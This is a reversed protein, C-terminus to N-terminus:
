DRSIAGFNFLLPTPLLSIIPEKRSMLTASEWAEGSRHTRSFGAIFLGPSTSGARSEQSTCEGNSNPSCSPEVGPDGFGAPM